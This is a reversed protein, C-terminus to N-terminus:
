GSSTVAQLEKIGLFVQVDTVARMSLVVAELGPANQLERLMAADIHFQIGKGNGKERSDMVESQVNMHAPTFDIGGKEDLAKMTENPMMIGNVHRAMAFDISPGPGMVNDNRGKRQRKPTEGYNAEMLLRNLKIIEFPSLKGRKLRSILDLTEAPRKKMAVYLRKNELLMKLPKIRAHLFINYNHEKEADSAGPMNLYDNEEFGRELINGRGDIFSGRMLERWHTNRFAQKEVTGAPPIDINSEPKIKRKLAQILSEPTMDKSFEDEQFDFSGEKKSIYLNVDCKGILDELYSDEKQKRIKEETLAETPNIFEIQRHIKEHVRVTGMSVTLLWRDFKYAHKNVEKGEAASIINELNDSLASRIDEISLNNQLSLQLLLADKLKENQEASKIKGIVKNKEDPSWFPAVEKIKQLIEQLKLEIDAEEEFQMIVFFEEGHLRAVLDYARTNEKLTKALQQLVANGTDHGFIDNYAKFHDIDILSAAFHIAGQRKKSEILAEFFRKVGLPGYLGTLHDIDEFSQEQAVAMESIDGQAYLTPLEINIALEKATTDDLPITRDGFYAKVKQGHKERWEPSAIEKLNERTIQVIEKSEQMEQWEKFIIERADEPTKDALGNSERLEQEVIYAKLTNEQDKGWLHNLGFLPKGGSQHCIYWHRQIWGDFGPFDQIPPKDKTSIRMAADVEVFTSTDLIGQPIQAPNRTTRIENGIGVAGTEKRKSVMAFNVGGSFYKRPIIQQTLINQEEKIYNYVGKKFAQLYRQYIAEVGNLHDYGVGAVKKKDAYFQNLISDKIKNKYWTALILSNYVQRLKAFNKNENVEKTLEPIVIERLIQSGVSNIGEGEHPHFNRSLALYDQELMVKLKAEVVYATGAKPNEYVMAKEPIIWVKNFTNFTINTTGFKKAAEEYIHKWFREGVEGEPYILSATIQKLMYDQALLDRGMETMGFSQPIVRDKEYPSLNVWLDREPITLSALFYKILKAAEISTDGGMAGDGKDLIFDFRFPNEPHIKIGKLMPPDLPPSLHVMVGPAPLHFGDAMAMPGCTNALFALLIVFSQWPRNFRGRKIRIPGGMPRASM